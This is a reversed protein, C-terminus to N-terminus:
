GFKVLTVVYRTLYDNLYGVVQLQGEAFLLNHQCCRKLKVKNIQNRSLSWREVTIKSHYLSFLSDQTHKVEATEM